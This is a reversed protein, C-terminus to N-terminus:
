IPPPRRAFTVFTVGATESAAREVEVFDHEYEPFFADCGEVDQGVLTLHLRTALPLAERYIEGGGIVFPEPDTQRARAVAEGLSACRVVGEPLDPAGRTVVINLRNPLPRGISDFTKRGMIVAHGTTLAKFRKLDEPVRWPLAGGKGIARGRGIAAILHLPERGM